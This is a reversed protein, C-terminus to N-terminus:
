VTADRSAVTDASLYGCACSTGMVWITNTGDVLAPIGREVAYQLYVNHMTSTRAPICRDRIDPSIYHEFVRRV